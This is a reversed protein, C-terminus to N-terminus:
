GARIMTLGGIYAPPIISFASPTSAGFTIGTGVAGTVGPNSPGLTDSAPVNGGVVGAGINIQFTHSHGPDNFASAPLNQSSLTTTQTGGSAGVSSGSFGTAASSIRGAGQDLGFRTRGRTDPLTAMVGFLAPYTGSSVASGDCNLYPPITCGSIWAPISSGAYDWYAGIRDMSHYYMNTGDNVITVSEGPPACVKQGGAVTTALTITFQSSGTCANRIEYSKKFSTPFTVTISALLTSNVTITKSQFQAAALVVSGAAGSIATIGGVILDALTENNNVPTDWTGVQDGRAPEEFQVNPTFTSVM